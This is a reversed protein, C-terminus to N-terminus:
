LEKVFLYMGFSTQELFNVFLIILAMLRNEEGKCDRILAAWRRIDQVQFTKGM